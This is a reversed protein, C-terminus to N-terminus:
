RLYIHFFVFLWLPLWFIEVVKLLVGFIAGFLESWDGSFKM